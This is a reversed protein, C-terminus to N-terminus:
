LDHFKKKISSLTEPTMGLMSGIYQHPVHNLLEKNYKYFEKYRNESNLSILQNVRGELHMFCHGVFRKEIKDWNLLEEQLKKYNNLDITFFSVDTLAQINWRNRQGFFFAGLDTLFYSPTAIWQTVEKDGSYNYVRFYGEMLFILKDCVQGKKTLFDNKKLQEHVFYSRLTKLETEQVGFFERIKLDFIDM